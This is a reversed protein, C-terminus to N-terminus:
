NDFFLGTRLWHATANPNTYLLEIGQVRLLTQRDGVIPTGTVAVQAQTCLPTMRATARNFEYFRGLLDKHLVLSKNKGDATQRVSSNTGASFTESAPVFTVTSWTNTALDYEYITASTSGRVVILRNLANADGSGPLWAVVCGQGLGAPAAAFAPGNASTTSWTASNINYRYVATANGGLLLIDAYWYATKASAIEAILPEVTLATAGAAAAVTTVAWLPAAFTGFNLVSNAPLALPLAAVALATANVAALATTTVTNLAVASHYGGEYGNIAPEPCVLRGDIGFAAPIGTSVLTTWVNTAIDYRSFVVSTGSAAISYITGYVQGLVQKGVQKIFRLCSGAAVTGSPLSALQQWTQAWTDFRWFNTANCLYYIFRENDDVVAAGNASAVPASPLQEWVPADLGPVNNNTITM